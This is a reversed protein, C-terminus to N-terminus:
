EGQETKLLIAKGVVLVDMETKMFCNFAEEPTCVIPEGRVNFSTNILVPCGTQNDFETLLQHFLQNRQSDVTQVRASYDVHTVAPIDSRIENLLEIGTAGQHSSKRRAPQVDAVVLMYPNGQEPTLEFYEEVRDELVVPAFPRFSERYKIKLNLQKQMTSNRPDGLISRNGLARPGFEMRGQMWGVVKGNALYAATQECLAAENEALKFKAGHRTLVEVVQEDSFTPGLASGSQ